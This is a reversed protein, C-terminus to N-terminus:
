RREQERTEQEHSPTYSGVEAVMHRRHRPAQRLTGRRTRLGWLSIGRDM